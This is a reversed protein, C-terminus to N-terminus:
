QVPSRRAWGCAAHAPSCRAAASGPWRTRTSTTVPTNAAALLPVFTALLSGAFTRWDGEAGQWVTYLVGLLVAVGYVTKRYKAPILGTLLSLNM